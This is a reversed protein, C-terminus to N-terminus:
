NMQGQDYCNSATDATSPVGTVLEMIWADMDRLMQINLEDDCPYQRLSVSLGAAHFLRLEDCTRDVPYSKSDRGQAIFLPLQRTQALRALPMQGLPFPGGISLVGAFCEPHRLGVRFATSGGGEYGALFIRRDSINLKSTAADICDFIRREAVEIDADSWTYGAPCAIPGRPGIGVYNRMSIEPMVRQLQSEDDDPGHLWVVLPYAYNPEYHLPAFIAHNAGRHYDTTLIAQEIGQEIDYLETTEADELSLHHLRNM